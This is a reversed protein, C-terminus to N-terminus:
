PREPANEDMDVGSVREEAGPADQAGEMHEPPIVPAPLADTRVYDGPEANTVADLEYVAGHEDEVTLRKPTFGPVYTPM